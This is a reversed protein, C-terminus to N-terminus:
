QLYSKVCVFLYEINLLPSKIGLLLFYLHVFPAWVRTTQAKELKTSFRLVVIELFDIIM